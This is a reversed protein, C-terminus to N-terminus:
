ESVKEVKLQAIGCLVDLMDDLTITENAQKGLLAWYEIQEAPTQNTSKAAATASRMIEQSLRVQKTKPM